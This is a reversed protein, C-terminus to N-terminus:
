YFVGGSTFFGLPEQRQLFFFLSFGPSKELRGALRGAPLHLM